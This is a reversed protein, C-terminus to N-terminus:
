IVRLIEVIQDSSYQPTKKKGYEMANKKYKNLLNIDTTLLRLHNILQDKKEIDFVLGIEEDIIEPHLGVMNSVILVCGFQIAEAAVNGHTAISYPPVVLIETNAYLSILEKQNKFGLFKVNNLNESQVLSKM